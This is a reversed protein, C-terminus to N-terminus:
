AEVESRLYRCLEVLREARANQIYDAGEKDYDVNHPKSGETVSIEYSNEDSTYAIGDARDANGKQNTVKKRYGSAVIAKGVLSYSIPIYPIGSFRALAKRLIPHIYTNMYEEELMEYADLFIPLTEFLLRKLKRLSFDFLFKSGRDPFFTNIPEFMEELVKIYDDEDVCRLVFESVPTLDMIESHALENSTTGERYEQFSQLLNTMNMSCQQAESLLNKIVLCKNGGDLVDSGEDDTNKRRKRNVNDM